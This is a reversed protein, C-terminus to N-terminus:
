KIIEQIASLLLGGAITQFTGSTFDIIHDIIYNRLGKQNKEICFQKAHVAYEREKNNKSKRIVEDLYSELDAFENQSFANIIQDGNVYSNDDGLISHNFAGGNVVCNDMHIM